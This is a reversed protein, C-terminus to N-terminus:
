TMRLAVAGAVILSAGLVRLFTLREGLFFVSFLLGFLVSTERLAAVMAIPAQSMCWIIIWYAIASVGGGLVGIKWHPLLQGIFAPGRTAAAYAVIAAGFLSFALGAYQSPSSAVRSGLGDLLTYGSIMVATTLAYFIAKGQGQGQGFALLLLGAIVLAVGALGGASIADGIFLLSGFLTFLPATGRLVPYALGFDGAEYAKALFVLYFTHVFASAVAYPYAQAQPLGFVILLGFGFIGLVAQLLVVASFRDLRVKVLVNWGAHM